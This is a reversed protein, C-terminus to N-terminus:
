WEGLKIRVTFGPSSSAIHLDSFVDDRREGDHSCARHTDRM